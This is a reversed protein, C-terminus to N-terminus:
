PTSTATGAAAATAESQRKKLAAATITFGPGIPRTTRDALIWRGWEAYPADKPLAALESRVDGFVKADYDRIRFVSRQDIEGGALATSLRLLWGPVPQGRASPPVPWALAVGPAGAKGTIIFRGDSSFAVSTLGVHAVGAIPEGLLVGTEADWIRLEGRTAAITAIRTEDPSFTAYLISNGGILPPLTRTRTAVDWLNTESRTWTLLRKSDRTFVAGRTINRHPLREGVTTRSQLDWLQVGISLVVAAYRDDPSFAVAVISQNQRLPEGLTRTMLDLIQVTDNSKTVVALYRNSPSFSQNAGYLPSIGLVNEIPGVIQGGKGTNYVRLVGGASVALLSSDPSFRKTTGPGVNGLPRRAIEPGALNWLELDGSGSQAALWQGNPSLLPATIEVPFTRPSGIPAGSVVDIRQMQKKKVRWPSAAGSADRQWGLQDPENPIQMPQAAGPAIAWRRLSEDSGVTLLEAKAPHVDYQRVDGASIPEMALRGSAMDWVRVIGDSTRTVLFQDDATIAPRSLDSGHELAPGIPTGAPVAWLRATGDVAASIVRSGDKTFITGGSLQAGHLMKAGVAVATFCDYLQVFGGTTVALLKDDPSFAIGEIGGGGPTDPKVKATLPTGDPIRVVQFGAPTGIALRASDRSIAFAVKNPNNHPVTAKEAGSEADWVKVMGDAGASVIWRNDPSFRIGGAFIRQTHRLSGPLRRGTSYDWVEVTGDVLGIAVRRGDTSDDSATATGGLKMTQLVEGRDLDLYRLTTDRNSYTVLHQGDQSYWGGRLGGPHVFPKGKAEAFSRYALASILRPGVVHNMPDSNAARVLYALGESTKSEDLLRSGLIFDTRSSQAAEARARAEARRQARIGFFAGVLLAVVAAGLGAIITRQRRQTRRQREAAQELALKQQRADRSARIVEALVDHTLEVRQVGLRDELRLLRRAVLTDILPRTVGPFELATELALNDRFGSKTLLHDEVFARMAEPLDAVSREYFDHLIERRNGSVLDATIQSQGLARRRDNLERCIVSLLPPEVDLEALREASGGRAGAVFEVIKEAVGEAILQPAPKTVIELAQTGSLKKLRLRNHILAPMEHKLGELDPLFDERLSLIVQCSPKDHNFRAPDLEGRDLKDQVAPPPRNEVLCALEILFARSRERATEDVRGLTFIEEFQDFALVPTLLRNKASWIDIDKRHFYEWLTLEPGLRPADAKAAAFAANLAAKVQDALSSVPTNAADPSRRSLDPSPVDHDLRLYLPLHDTERLLPFLGAQLLSSKGLGSQGFLVTLTERRVLRSLEDTEKDRGFFFGRTDETFSSLGPWPNERDIESTPSQSM